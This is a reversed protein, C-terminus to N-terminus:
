KGDFLFDPVPWVRNRAEHIAADVEEQSVDRLIKFEQEPYIMDPDKIQSRNAKYILPWQFPDGYHKEMESIGWLTDGRVVMYSTPRNAAAERALREEELRRRRAEEARRAEEEQRRKEAIAASRAKDALNKAQMALERVKAYNCDSSSAMRKAEKLRSAAASHDSRAFKAAEARESEALAAEAAKIAQDAASKAEAMKKKAAAEAQQAAAIADPSAKKVKGYKKDDALRNIEDVKGKAGDFESAAYERACAARAADLAANADALEQPPKRACGPAVLILVVLVMWANRATWLKRM